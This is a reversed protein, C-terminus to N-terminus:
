PTSRQLTPQPISREFHFVKSIILWRDRVMILTLFDTFNKDGITCRLRVRATKPGAFEISDIHDQRPEKRSAPSPRKAVISFYEDMTHHVLVDETACVYIAKEHFAFRLRKVDSHFLGDCYLRLTDIVANFQTNM